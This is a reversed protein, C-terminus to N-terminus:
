EAEVLFMKLLKGIRGICSVRSHRETPPEGMESNITEPSPLSLCLSLQDVNHRLNSDKSHMSLCQGDSPPLPVKFVGEIHRTPMQPIFISSGICRALSFPSWSPLIGGGQLTFTGETEQPQALVTPALRSCFSMGPDPPEHCLEQKGVTLVLSTPSGVNGM